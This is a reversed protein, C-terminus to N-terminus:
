PWTVYVNRKGVIRCGPPFTRLRYDGDVPKIALLSANCQQNALVLTVLYPVGQDGKSGVPRDPSSWRGNTLIIPGSRQIYDEHYYKDGYDYNFLWGNEKVLGCAQGEVLVGIPGSIKKGDPPSTIRLKSTCSPAGTPPPSSNNSNSNSTNVLVFIVPLSGAVITAAAGILAVKIRIDLSKFWTKPRM